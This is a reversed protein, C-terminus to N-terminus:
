HLSKFNQIEQLLEMVDAAQNQKFEREQIMNLIKFLSEKQELNAEEGDHLYYNEKLVLDTVTKSHQIKSTYIQFLDYGLGESLQKVVAISPATKHGSEIRNIYSATVGTLDELERLSLGSATRLSKVVEGLKTTLRREVRKQLVRIKKSLIAKKNEPIAAKELSEKIHDVNDITENGDAEDILSMLEILVKRYPADKEAGIGEIVDNRLLDYNRKDAEDKETLEVETDAAAKKAFFQLDLVMALRKNVYILENKLEM